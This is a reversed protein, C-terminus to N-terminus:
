VRRILPKGVVDVRDLRFGSTGTHVVHVGFYNTRLGRGLDVRYIEKTTPVAAYSFVSGNALEVAVSVRDANRPAVYMYRPRRINLDGWLRPHSELRCTVEVATDQKRLATASTSFVEGAHQVSSTDTDAYESVANNALNMVITM